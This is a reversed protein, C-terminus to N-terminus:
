AFAITNVLAFGSAAMLAFQFINGSALGFPTASSTASLAATEVLTAYMSYMSLSSPLYPNMGVSLIVRYTSNRPSLSGLSPSM